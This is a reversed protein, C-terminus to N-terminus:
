FLDKIFKWLKKFIWFGFWFTFWTTQEESYKNYWLYSWIVNVYQVNNSIDWVWMIKDKWRFSALKFIDKAVRDVNQMKAAWWILIVWWPLKADKWINRLQKNIRDFIEEYRAAIIESLFAMDIQEDEIKNDDFLIVWKEKKIIEAEKIDLQLWISIDKTVEEWWIPIIWYYIPYWEEYVVFSTQNNWIDVLLTWLDKSDFDLAVESAWLINPVIDFIDIEIKEFIERLSNYFNKPIMFIDAVLDLRRWEMWVPDKLKMEDDIIWQVPIIKITEYNVEWSTDSIVNLLHNIDDQWITPNIVRKQESIRKIIMDPHSISICIKDFFQEWLKKVFSDLVVNITQIFDDVDLVKWKRMWKTKVMERALVINKWDEVWFVVWKVYWNGLDIVVKIEDM